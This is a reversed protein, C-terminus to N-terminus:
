SEVARSLVAVETGGVQVEVGETGRTVGPNCGRIGLVGGCEAPCQFEQAGESGTVSAIKIVDVRTESVTGIAM